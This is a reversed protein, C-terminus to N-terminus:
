IVGRRSSMIAMDKIKFVFTRNIIDRGAIFGVNFDKAFMEISKKKDRRFITFNRRIVERVGSIGLRSNNSHLLSNASSRIVLINSKNSVRIRRIRGANMKDIRIGMASENMTFNCTKM